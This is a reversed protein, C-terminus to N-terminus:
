DSWQPLLRCTVKSPAFRIKYGCFYLKSLLDQLGLNVVLPYNVLRIRWAKVLTYYVWFSTERKNNSGKSASVMTTTGKRIPISLWDHRANLICSHWANQTRTIYTKPYDQIHTRLESSQRNDLYPNKQTYNRICPFCLSQTCLFPFRHYKTNLTFQIKFWRIVTLDSFYVIQYFGSFYDVAIRTPSLRNQLCLWALQVRTM